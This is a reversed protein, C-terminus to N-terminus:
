EGHDRRDERDLWREMRGKDRTVFRTTGDRYAVWAFGRVARRYEYRIRWPGRTRPLTRPAFLWQRLKDLM